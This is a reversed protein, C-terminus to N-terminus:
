RPACSRSDTLLAMNYLSRITAAHTFIYRLLQLGSSHIRRMCVFSLSVWLAEEPQQDEPQHATHDLEPVLFWASGDVVKCPQFKESMNLTVIDVVMFAQAICAFVLISSTVRV